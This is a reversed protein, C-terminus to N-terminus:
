RFLGWRNVPAEKPGCQTVEHALGPGLIGTGKFKNL